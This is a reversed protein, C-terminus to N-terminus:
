RFTHISTFGPFVILFIIPLNEKKNPEVPPLQWTDKLIFNEWLIICKHAM